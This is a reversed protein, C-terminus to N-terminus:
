VATGEWSSSVRLSARDGAGVEAVELGDAVGKRETPSKAETGVGGLAQSLSLGGISAGDSCRREGGGVIVGAETAPAPAPAPRFVPELAPVSAPAPAVVEDETEAGVGADGDDDLAERGRETGALEVEGAL